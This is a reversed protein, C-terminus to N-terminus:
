HNAVDTKTGPSSKWKEYDLGDADYDGWKTGTSSAFLVADRYGIQERAQRLSEQRRSAADSPPQRDSETVSLIRIAQLEDTFYPVLVGPSEGLIATVIPASAGLFGNSFDAREDPVIDFGLPECEGSRSILEIEV